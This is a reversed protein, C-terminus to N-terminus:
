LVVPYTEGILFTIRLRRRTPASRSQNTMGTRFIVVQPTRIAITAAPLMRPYRAYTRALGVTSSRARASISVADPRRALAVLEAPVTRGPEFAARARPKSSSARPAM